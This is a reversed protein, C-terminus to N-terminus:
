QKAQPFEEVVNGNEDLFQLKAEGAATVYMKIRPHGKGDNLLVQSTNEPDYGIFFRTPSALNPHQALIARKEDITKANQIQQIASQFEPSDYAPRNWGILYAYLKGNDNGDDLQVLQDTKVSDFSVTNGSEFTGDPHVIGTWTLGGQEDGRENYFIIGNVAGSSRKLVKGGIIPPPFDDHSSIVMALKGERDVVNIRHVTLTDLTVIKAAEGAAGLLFVGALVTSVLAYTRLLRIEKRISAIKV